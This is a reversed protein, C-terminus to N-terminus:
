HVRFYNRVPEVHYDFAICPRNDDSVTTSFRIEMLHDGNWGLEDSVGTPGLGLYAYFDSLSAYVGQNIDYNIRNMAQKITEMSSYFYRDTFREYCLDSGGGTTRPRQQSVPNRDMRDQQLEDEVKQAKTKGFHEVVKDKYEGAAKESLSYAAALAATRKNAVTSACVICTITGVLSLAPPIFYKWSYVFMERDTMPEILLEGAKTNQRRRDEEEYQIMEHAQIAAKGALVATTVTGVVGFATLILPSNDSALQAGRKALSSL